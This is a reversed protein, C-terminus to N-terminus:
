PNFDITLVLKMDTDDIKMTGFIAIPSVIIDGKTDFEVIVNDLTYQADQYYFSFYFGKTYGLYHHIFPANKSGKKNDLTFNYNVVSTIDDLFIPQRGVYKSVFEDTPLETYRSTIETGDEYIKLGGGIHDFEYDISRLTDNIVTKNDHITIINNSSFVKEDGNYITLDRNTTKNYLLTASSIAINLADEKTIVVESCGILSISLM